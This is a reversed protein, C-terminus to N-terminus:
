ELPPNPGFLFGSHRTTIHTSPFKGCFNVVSSFVGARYAWCPFSLAFVEGQTQAPLVTVKSFTSVAWAGGEIGWNADATIKPFKKLM